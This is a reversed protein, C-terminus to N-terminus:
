LPHGGRGSAREHARCGALFTDLYNASKETLGSLHATVKDRIVKEGEREIRYAVGALPLISLLLFSSILLIRLARFNMAHHDEQHGTPSRVHGCSSPLVGLGARRHM